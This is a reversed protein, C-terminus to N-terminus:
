HAVIMTNNITGKASSKYLAYFLNQLVEIRISRDSTVAKKLQKRVPLLVVCGATVGLDPM